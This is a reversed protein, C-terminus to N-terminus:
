STSPPGRRPFMAAHSIHRGAPANQGPTVRLQGRQPPPQGLRQGAVAARRTSRAAPSRCSAAPPPVPRRRAAPRAAPATPGPRLLAPHAATTAMAASVPRRRRRSRALRAPGGIRAAGPGIVQRRDTEAGGRGCDIGKDGRRMRGSQKNHQLIQVPSVMGRQEQQAFKLGLQGGRAQEHQGGAPVGSTIGPPGREGVKARSGPRCTIRSAGSSSAATSLIRGLVAPTPASGSTARDTCARESPLGSYTAVSARTRAACGPMAGAGIRHRADRAAAGLDTM